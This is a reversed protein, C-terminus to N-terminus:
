KGAAKGMVKGAVGGAAGGAAGMIGEGTVGNTLTKVKPLM